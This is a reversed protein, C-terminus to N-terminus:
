PKKALGRWIRNQERCIFGEKSSKWQEGDFFWRFASTTGDSGKTEYFGIHVPKIHASFWETFKSM